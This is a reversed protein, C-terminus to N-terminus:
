PEARGVQPESEVQPEAGGNGARGAAFSARMSALDGAFRSILRLGDDAAARAPGALPGLVSLLDGLVDVEDSDIANRMLLVAEMDGEIVLARNFFLADGDIRGELLDILQALSGRISATAQTGPPLRREDRLVKLSPTAGVPRLLFIMPLDTPDILFLPDDLEALREFIAPHRRRMVALVLDLAPRLPALPLGGLPLAGLAPGVRGLLSLSSNDPKTRETM